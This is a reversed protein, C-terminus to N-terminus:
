PLPFCERFVKFISDRSSLVVPIQIFRWFYAGIVPVWPGVWRRGEWEWLDGCQIEWFGTLHTRASEPLPHTLLSPASASLPLFPSVSPKISIPCSGLAWALIHSPHITLAM